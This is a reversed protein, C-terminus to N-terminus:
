RQGAWFSLEKAELASGSASVAHAVIRGVAGVGGNAKLERKRGKGDCEKEFWEKETGHVGRYALSYLTM